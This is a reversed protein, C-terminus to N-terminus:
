DNFMGKKRMNELTNSFKSKFELFGVSSLLDVEPESDAISSLTTRSTLLDPISDEDGDGNVKGSLGGGLGEFTPLVVPKRKDKIEPDWFTDQPNLRGHLEEL